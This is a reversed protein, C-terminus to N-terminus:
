IIPFTNIGLPINIIYWVCVMILLTIFIIFTFPLQYKISDVLRIRSEGQNYKELFALYVIFYALLPTVNM